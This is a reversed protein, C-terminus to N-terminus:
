DRVFWGKLEGEQIKRFGQDIAVSILRTNMINTYITNGDMKEVMEKRLIRGIQEGTVSEHVETWEILGINETQFLLYECRARTTESDRFRVLVRECSDSRLETNNILKEVPNLNSPADFRDVNKKVAKGTVSEIRRITGSFDTM